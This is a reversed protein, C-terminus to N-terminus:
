LFEALSELSAARAQKGRAGRFTLAGEGEDSFVLHLWFEGRRAFTFLLLDCSFGGGLRSLYADLLEPKSPARPEVKVAVELQRAALELLAQRSASDVVLEAGVRVRGPGWPAPSFVNQFTFHSGGLRVQLKGEADITVTVREGRAPAWTQAPPGGARLEAWMETM